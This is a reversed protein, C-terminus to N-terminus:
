SCTSGLVQWSSGGSAAFPGLGGQFYYVASPGVNPGYVGANNGICVPNTTGETCCKQTTQLNGNCDYYDFYIMQNDAVDIDAQIALGEYEFAGPLCGGAAPSPAPTESPTPTPTPALIESTSPTPTPTASPVVPVLEGRAVISYVHGPTTTFTTSHVIKDPPATENVDGSYIVTSTTTDTVTFIFRGTEGSTSTTRQALTISTAGPYTFTGTTTGGVGPIIVGDLFIDSDIWPSANEWNDYNFTAFPISPTPTPTISPAPTESPTVSPTPAPGELPHVYGGFYYTNAIDAVFTYSAAAKPPTASGRTPGQAIAVSDILTNAGNISATMYAAFSKGCDTYPATPNLVYYITDDVWTEVTVTSGQPVYITKTGAETLEINGNVKIECDVVWGDPLPNCSVYGIGAFYQELNIPVM